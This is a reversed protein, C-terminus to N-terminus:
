GASAVLAARVLDELQQASPVQGASDFRALGQRDVVLLRPILYVSYARYARGDDLLTSTAMPFSRHALYQQVMERTDQIFVDLLVVNSEKLFEGAKAIEAALQSCSPCWTTALKVLVVQGRFDSLSVQRGDLDALTFDPAPEGIAVAQASGPLLALLMAFMLIFMHKCSNTMM